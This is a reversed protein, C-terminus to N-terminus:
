IKNSCQQELKTDLVIANLIQWPAPPIFITKSKAGARLLKPYLHEGKIIRALERRKEWIDALEEEYRKELTAMANTEAIANARVIRANIEPKSLLRSANYYASKPSCGPYATLYAKLRDGHTIM